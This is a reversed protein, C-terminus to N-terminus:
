FASSFNDLIHQAYNYFASIICRMVILVYHSFNISSLVITETKRKKMKCKGHKDMLERLKTIMQLPFLKWHTLTKRPRLPAIDVRPENM